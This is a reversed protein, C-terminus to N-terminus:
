TLCLCDRTWMCRVCSVLCWSFVSSLVLLLLSWWESVIGVVVLVLGVWFASLAGPILYVRNRLGQLSVLWMAVFECLMLIFLPM